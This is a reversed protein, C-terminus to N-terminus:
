RTRKKRAAPPPAQHQVRSFFEREIAPTVTDAKIDRVIAAIRKACEKLFFRGKAATAPAADGAYQDPYDAYWWISTRVNPLQALRKQPLGPASLQQMRVLKPTLAMMTSTEIEGGHHDFASQMQKKWAPDESVPGWFDQLRIVYVTYPRPKELLKFTYASLWSENGGHGNLLVIKRFGNRAIEDCLNDLLAFLLDHPLAIAGPWHKAEHIQGFPLGPFLVVPELRAAQEALHQVQFWDTGVPLHDGHKEFVGLPVVCTADAAAVAAPFDLATLDEWKWKLDPM